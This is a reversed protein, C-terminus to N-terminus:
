SQVSEDADVATEELVDIKAADFRIMSEPLGILLLPCPNGVGRRVRRCYGDHSTTPGAFDVERCIGHQAHDSM